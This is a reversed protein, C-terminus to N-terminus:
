ATYTVGGVNLGAACVCGRLARTYWRWWRWWWRGDSGNGCEFKGRWLVFIVKSKGAVTGSDYILVRPAADAYIKIRYSSQVANSQGDCSPLVWSLTPTTSVGLAPCRQWDVRLDSPSAATTTAQVQITAVAGVLLLLHLSLSWYTM